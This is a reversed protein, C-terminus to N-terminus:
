EEGDFDGDEHETIIKSYSGYERESRQIKLVGMPLTGRVAVVSGDVTRVDSKEFDRRNLLHRVTSPIESYVTIRDEGKNVRIILEKEEPALEPDAEVDTM